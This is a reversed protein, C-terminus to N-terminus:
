ELDKSLGTKWLKLEDPHTREPPNHQVSTEFQLNQAAITGSTGAGEVEAPQDQMPSSPQVEPRLDRASLIGLTEAQEAHPDRSPEVSQLVTTSITVPMGSLDTRELRVDHTTISPQMGHQLDQAATACLMSSMEAEESLISTPPQLDDVLPQSTALNHQAHPTRIEQAPASAQGNETEAEKSAPLTALNCTACTLYETEGAKSLDTASDPRCCTQIRQLPVGSLSTSPAMDPLLDQELKPLNARTGVDLSFPLMEPSQPAAFSPSESHAQHACVMGNNDVDFGMRDDVSHYYTSGGQSIVPTTEPQRWTQSSDADLISSSPQIDPHLSQASEMDPNSSPEAEAQPHGTVATNQQAPLGTSNQAPMNTVPSSESSSGAIEGRKRLKRRAENTEETSAENQKYLQCRSKGNLLNLWFKPPDGDLSSVGDREGVLTINRSYCEGSMYAKSITPSNVKGSDQIDTSVETVFELIVKDMFVIGREHSESACNDQQLEDVRRFLFSVGWSLLCHSLTPMIDQCNSHIIMGQKALVLGVRKRWKWLSMVIDRLAKVNDTAMQSQLISSNALLLSSYQKLQAQSFYAPVWYEMFKSSCAKQEYAIHRKFRTRLIALADADIYDGIDQESHLFALLSKYEVINDEIVADPHALLVHFMTHAGNKHSDPNQNSQACREGKKTKTPISPQEPRVIVSKRKPMPPASDGAKAAESIGHSAGDLQQKRKRECSGLAEIGLRTTTPPHAKYLNSANRSSRKTSLLSSLQRSRLHAANIADGSGGGSTTDSGAAGDVPSGGPRNAM